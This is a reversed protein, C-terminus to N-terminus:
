ENPFCSVIWLDPKVDLQEIEHGIGKAIGPTRKIVFPIDAGPDRNLDIFKGDAFGMILCRYRLHGPVTELTM